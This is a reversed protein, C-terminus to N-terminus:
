GRVPEEKSRNLPNQFSSVSQCNSSSFFQLGTDDSQSLQTGVLWHTECSPSVIQDTCTPPLMFSINFSHLLKPQRNKIKPATPLNFTVKLGNTSRQIHARVRVRYLDAVRASYYSLLLWSQFYVTYKFISITYMIVSIIM